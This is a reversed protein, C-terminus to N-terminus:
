PKRKEYLNRIDWLSLRKIQDVTLGFEKMVFYIEYLESVSRYKSIIANYDYNNALM